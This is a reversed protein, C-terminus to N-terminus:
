KNELDPFFLANLEDASNNCMLCPKFNLQELLESDFSLTPNYKVRYYQILLDKIPKKFKADYQKLFSKLEDDSLETDNMQISGNRYGLFTLKQFRSIIHQKNKNKVFFQRALSIVKDIESELESLSLNEFSDYGSNNIEIEEVTRQINWRIDLKKLFTKVDRNFLEFNDTFWERFIRVQREQLEIIEKKTKGEKEAQEKVRNKIESPILFNTFSSTLRECTNTLHYSPSRESEFIYQYTDKHVVRQYIEIAFKNPDKLLTKMLLLYKEETKNLFPIPAKYVEGEIDPIESLRIKKLIKRSNAKTIYAM